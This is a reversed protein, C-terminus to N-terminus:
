NGAAQRAAPNVRDGLDRLAAVNKDRLTFATRGVSVEVSSARAIKKFTQYPIQAELTEKSDTATWSESVGQAQAALRMRGLRLVEGDAVATLDRQDLPHRNDWDKTEFTLRLTAHRVYDLQQGPCHLSVALNVCVGSTIGAAGKAGGCTVSMPRLAVVTERAVGDYRMEIKGGHKVPAAQEKQAPAPQPKDQAPASAAHTFLLAGYCCAALAIRKM